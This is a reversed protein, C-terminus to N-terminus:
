VSVPASIAPHSQYGILEFDEPKYEWVNPRARKVVLEPYPHMLTRGTQEMAQKVHNQYLHIDGFVFRGEGPELRCTKAMLHCLLSYSAINFPVGLFIDASRQYMQFDLYKGDRVYWQVFMHCPPLAMQDLESPNWASMVIRRSEPDNVIQHQCQSLQDVGGFDRWQKGYVPGLEGGIGAWEDWIHVGYRQLDRVNTSGSMFWLLEAWVGRWFVRKTTLMPFSHTLDATITKGFASYTGTGTRDGRREGTHILEDMLALYEAEFRMPTMRMLTM